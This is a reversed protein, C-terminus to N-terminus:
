LSDILQQASHTGWQFGDEHFGYGMYSGAVFIPPTQQRLVAQTALSATDFIPHRETRDNLIKDSQITDPNNLTVLYHTNAMNLAHLRNMYYTVHCHPATHHVTWSAWRHPATRPMISTDTHLTVRNTAYRWPALCKALPHNGLCARAQDAQAAILVRDFPISETETRVVATTDSQLVAQIPTNTHIRGSFQAQFADLYRQAGGCVTRWRPRDQVQLLCHNDWFAFFSQAPFNLIEDDPCSWIAAGMPILYRHIFADPYNKQALYERLSLTGMTPLDAMTTRNFLSITRIVSWHTPSWWRSGVIGWPIDSTYFYGDDHYGFSMDSAQTPVSLENLFQSFLPYNKDNLVIFGTDIATETDVAITHTHGGLRPQAEFLDVQAHNQLAYCAAIGTIGSGVVAVRPKPM